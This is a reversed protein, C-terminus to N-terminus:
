QKEKPASALVAGFVVAVLLLIGYIVQLWIQSVQLVGLLSQLLYIAAAGILAGLLGGRGGGLATGGLAVAAIAILTYSTSTSAVASSVLGTLALGGVAAFAGGLAYASVRITNVNVGATFATTDNGGVAYLTRGYATRTLAVWIAVPILISILGGPIFGVSGALNGLWTPGTSVPMPALKLNVGSIVFFMSLTVVIPQLRLLVILLGNVVGVAAGVVILIPLAAVGGLGLPTLWVAFLISCLTMVPSISMDLGGRGSVISPVSAMAAIALPAFSALQDTLGFNPQIALNIALFLAALLLSFAYSYRRFFSGVGQWRRAPQPPAKLTTASTTM